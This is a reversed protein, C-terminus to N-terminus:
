ATRMTNEKVAAVAIKAITNKMNKLAAVTEMSTGVSFNMTIGGGGNMDENSTINGSYRPSFLEPGNEGVLYSGGANVPGGEARAGDIGGGGGGGFPNLSAVASAVKKFLSWVFNLKDVMADIAGILSNRIFSWIFRMGDVFLRFMSSSKYLKKILEPLKVFALEGIWEGLREGLPILQKILLVLGTIYLVVGWFALGLSIVISTVTTVATIIMAFAVLLTGIIVVAPAILAVWIAFNIKNEQTAKDLAMFEKLAGKIVEMWALFVPSLVEGIQEATAQVVSLFLKFQGYLSSEMIKRMADAAGTAADLAAAFEFTKNQNNALILAVTAGRKGFMEFATAGQNVSGTIADYAEDLSMGAGMMDLLMNRIGTGATSAEVMEDVLTALMATSQEASLGFSNAVPALTGMGVKYKELNLASNSFAKAMMDTVRSTQTTEMGFARLTGAVVLATEGLDEDTAQALGLISETSNVIDQPDFGLKSLNLQLGAIQQATYITTQGLRKADKELMNFEADTAGSIAKVKMMAHELDMFTKISAVGIAAIPATVTRSLSSGVSKFGNGLRKMKAGVRSIDKDLQTTNLSVTGFLSGIKVAM